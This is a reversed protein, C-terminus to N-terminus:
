AKSYGKLLQTPSSRGFADMPWPNIRTRIRRAAADRRWRAAVAGGRGVATAGGADRRLTGGRRWRAVAGGGRGVLKVRRHTLRM